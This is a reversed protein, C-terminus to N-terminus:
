EVINRGVQTYGLLCETDNPSFEFFWSLLFQNNNKNKSNIIRQCPYTLKLKLIRLKSPLPFLLLDM